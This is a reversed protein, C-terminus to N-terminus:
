ATQPRPLHTKFNFHAFWVMWIIQCGLWLLINIGFVGSLSDTVDSNVTNLIASAMVIAWGVGSYIGTVLLGKPLPNQKQYVMLQLHKLALWIGFGALVALWFISRQADDGDVSNPASAYLAWGGLLALGIAGLTLSFPLRQLRPLQGKVMQHLSYTAVTLIPLAAIMLFFEGAGEDIVALPFAIVLFIVGIIAALIGLISPTKLPNMNAKRYFTIRADLAGRLTDFIDWVTTPQEELLALFEDGYRKRWAKPYLYILWKM